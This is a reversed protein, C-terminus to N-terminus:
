THPNNNRERCFYTRIMDLYFVHNQFDKLFCASFINNHIVLIFLWFDIQCFKPSFVYFELCNEPYVIKIIFARSFLPYNTINIRDKLLILDLKFSAKRKKSLFSLYIRM